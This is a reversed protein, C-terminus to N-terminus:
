DSQVFGRNIRVGRNRLINPLKRGRILEYLYFHFQKIKYLNNSIIRYIHDLRLTNILLWSYICTAGTNILLWENERSIKFGTSYCPLDSPEASTDSWRIWARDATQEDSAKNNVPM